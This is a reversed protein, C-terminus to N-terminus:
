RPRFFRANAYSRRRFEELSAKSAASHINRTPDRAVRARAARAAGLTELGRSPASVRAFTITDRRAKADRRARRRAPTTASRRRWRAASLGPQAKKRSSACRRKGSYPYFLPAIPGTAVRDPVRGDRACRGATRPSVRSEFRPRVSVSPYGTLHMLSYQLMCGHGASLVFRDRNFWSHNKPNHTMAERYIVYGMPACGMPLGPHGSNSKNIADIALFRVTNVCDMVTDASVDAPAALAARVPKVARASVRASVKKAKATVKAGAFTANLAAMQSAAAAMKGQTYPPLHDHTRLFTTARSARRPFRRSVSAIGVGSNRSGKRIYSPRTHSSLCSSKSCSACSASLRFSSKLLSNARRFISM